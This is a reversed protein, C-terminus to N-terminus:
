KAFLNWWKQWNPIKPSPKTSLYPKLLDESILISQEGPKVMFLKNRAEEEIFQSTKTYSLEAKLKQNLVQESALQNEAQTLLDQKHWLEFISHLLNNIILLLVIVTIVFFVKKM